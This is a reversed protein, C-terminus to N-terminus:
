GGTRHAERHGANNLNNINMVDKLSPIVLYARDFVATEIAKSLAKTTPHFINIAGKTPYTLRLGQGDLRTHIGISGLYLSNDLLISAFGILGNTPKIPVIQIESIKM